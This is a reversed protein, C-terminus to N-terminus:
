TQTRKIIGKVIWLALIGKKKIEIPEYRSMKLDKNTEEDRGIKTFALYNDSTCLVMDSHKPHRQLRKVMTYDRTRVLYVEGWKIVDLDRIQKCVVLNGSEVTPYMSNEYVYMAFDCDKYEPIKLYDNPIQEAQSVAELGSATAPGEYVPIGDNMINTANDGIKLEKFYKGYHKEFNLRINESLAVKNNYPRNITNRHLGLEVAIDTPTKIVKDYILKDVKKIFDRNDITGM